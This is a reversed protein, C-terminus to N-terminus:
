LKKDQTDQPAPRSKSSAARMAALAAPAGVLDFRVVRFQDGKLPFAIGIHRSSAIINSIAEFDTFVLGYTGAQGATEGTCGVELSQATTDSNVLVPYKAGPKCRTSMGLLWYCSGASPDCYQGLIHGSDTVTSAYVGGTGDISAAWKDFTQPEALAVFGSLLAIAVVAVVRKM